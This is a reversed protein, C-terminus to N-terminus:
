EMKSYSVLNMMWTRTLVRVYFCSPWSQALYIALNTEQTSHKPCINLLKGYCPGYKHDLDFQKLIELDKLKNQNNNLETLQDKAGKKSTKSFSSNTSSDKM